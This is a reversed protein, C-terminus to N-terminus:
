IWVVLWSLAVIVAVLIGCMAVDSWWIPKKAHTRKIFGKTAVIYVGMGIPPAMPTRLYQLEPSEKEAM